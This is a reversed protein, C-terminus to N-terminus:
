KACNLNFKLIKPKEVTGLIEKLVVEQGLHIKIEDLGYLYAVCRENEIRLLFGEETLKINKVVGAIPASVYTKQFVKFSYNGVGILNKPNLPHVSSLMKLNTLLWNQHTQAYLRRLKREREELALIKRLTFRNLSLYIRTEKPSNKLDKSKLHSFIYVRLLKRQLANIEKLERELQVLSKSLSLNLTEVCEGRFPYILSSIIIMFLLKFKM